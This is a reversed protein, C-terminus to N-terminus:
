RRPWLRSRPNLRYFASPTRLRTRSLTPGNDGDWTLAVVRRWRPADARGLAFTSRSVLYRTSDYQQELSSQKSPEVEFTEVNSAKTIAAGPDGDAYTPQRETDPMGCKVPRVTNQQGM